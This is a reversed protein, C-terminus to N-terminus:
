GASLGATFLGTQQVEVPVGELMEPIRDEPSIAEADVIEDVMVVLCVQREHEGSPDAAKHKSSFGLAVGVVHPKSMLADTYKEQVSQAHRLQLQMPDSASM